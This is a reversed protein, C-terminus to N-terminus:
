KLTKKGLISKKLGTSNRKKIFPNIQGETLKIGGKKAIQSGKDELSTIIDTRYILDNWLLAM